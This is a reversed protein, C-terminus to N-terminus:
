EGWWIFELRLKQYGAFGQAKWHSSPKMALKQPWPSLIGSQDLHQNDGSIVMLLFPDGLQHHTPGTKPVLSSPSPLSNVTALIHRAIWVLQVKTVNDVNEVMSVSGLYWSYPLFFYMWPSCSTHPWQCMRRNRLLFCKHTSGKHLQFKM